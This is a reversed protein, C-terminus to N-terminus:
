MLIRRVRQKETKRIPLSETLSRVVVHKHRPDNCNAIEAQETERALATDPLFGASLLVIGTGLTSFLRRMHAFHWCFAKYVIFSSPTDQM